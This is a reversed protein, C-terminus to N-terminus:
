KGVWLVMVYVGACMGWMCEVWGVGACVIVGVHM